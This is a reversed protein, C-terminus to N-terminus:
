PPTITKKVVIEFRIWTEINGGPTTMQLDAYLTCNSPWASTPTKISITGNGLVIGGAPASTLSVVPTGDRREIRMAASYSTLDIPANTDADKVDITDPFFTDGHPFDEIVLRAPSYSVNVSASM